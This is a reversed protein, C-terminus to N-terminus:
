KLKQREEAPVENITATRSKQLARVYAVIAWRDPVPVQARYSPMNRVGNTIVDFIYGDPAALLRPDTYSPPPLYGRQVVIGRGDGTRGHCPACYIDFRDQGRKMLDLTIPVPIRSILSDIADRGRYYETDEHYEGRAVTGPVPPRMASGDAFFRSESQPLYKEQHDMNPNMHIPPSEHPTGRVCGMMFAAVGAIAIMAVLRSIITTRIRAAWYM